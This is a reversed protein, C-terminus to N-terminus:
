TTPHGQPPESLEGTWIQGFGEDEHECTLFQHGCVLCRPVDCEWDHTNDPRAWCRPCRKPGLWAALDAKVQQMGKEMLFDEAAERDFVPEATLDYTVKERDAM